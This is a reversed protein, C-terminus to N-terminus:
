PKFAFGTRGIGSAFFTHAGLAEPDLAVATALNDPLFVEVLVEVDARIAFAVEAYIRTAAELQEKVVALVFGVIGPQAGIIRQLKDIELRIPVAQALRLRFATQGVGDDIGSALQFAAVDDDARHSVAKDAAAHSRDHALGDRSRDLM